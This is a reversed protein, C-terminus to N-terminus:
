RDAPATVSSGQATVSGRTRDGFQGAPSFHKKNTDTCCAVLLIIIIIIFIKIVILACFKNVFIVCYCQKKTTPFCM